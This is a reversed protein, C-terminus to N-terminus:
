QTQEEIARISGAGKNNSTMQSKKKGRVYLHLEKKM